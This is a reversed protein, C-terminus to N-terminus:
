GAEGAAPPDDSAGLYARIEAAMAQNFLVDIAASAQHHLRDVSGTLQELDGGTDVITTREITERDRDNDSM